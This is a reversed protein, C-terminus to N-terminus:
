LIDYLCLIMLGAFPMEDKLRNYLIRKGSKKHSKVTELGVDMIDAIEANGKGEMALMFVKRCQEPLGDVAERLLVFVEEELVKRLYGDDEEEEHSVVYHNYRLKVEEHRLHKLCRNKVATYLYTKLHEITMFKEKEQIMALFVDQVIDKPVDQDAVYSSAFLVLPAYYREFLLKVGVNDYRSLQKLWISDGTTAM